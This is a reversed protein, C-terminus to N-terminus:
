VVSPMQIIEGEDDPGGKSLFDRLQEIPIPKSYKYGQLYQAQMCVCREEDIDDEIGEYLVRYNLKRFMDAFTNVMFESNKDKASEIVLSRDFKIIDFPLEMIRDFNSYGSGFDDLYFKIGHKRLEEIRAKMIEFDTANTSETLEIAIKECPIRNRKIIDIVDKSFYDDRVEQVAFNVSVRRIRYGDDMLERISRCTKNLIIMSLTHIVNEQEALPIFQDPFVMGLEPLKMRMLAEATDYTGTRVNYVPQCFTMVREDNYDLRDRIDHLQDVIYKNRLYKEVDEAKVRYYVNAPIRKEMYAFFKNYECDKSLSPNTELMVIKFDLKYKEYLQDFSDCLRRIIDSYYKQRTIDFALVLRGGSLRFLTADKADNKFFHFVDFKIDGVFGAYNDLEHMRLSMLMLKRDNKYVKRIQDVFSKEDVAGTEPDYPNSHVLYMVSMIPFLFLGTTFSTQHNMGQVFQMILMLAFSFVIGSFIQKIIRNRYKFLLFMIMSIYFIVAFIFVNFGEVMSGDPNIRFSVGMVCTVIDAIALIAFATNAIVVYYTRKEELYVLSVIYHIFLFFNSFLVLHYAERFVYALVLMGPFMEPVLRFLLNFAAAVLTLILMMRFLKSTTEGTTYTRSVLVILLISIAMTLVDGVPTYEIVAGASFLGM